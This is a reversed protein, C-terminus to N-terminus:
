EYVRMLKLVEARFDVHQRRAQSLNVVLKPRGSVLDFGLVIGAPVYDALSAVTLLQMSGLADRIAPVQGSFGPTLYVIAIQRTRCTEGLTPADVYSAIEDEHSLGGVSPLTALASKMDTAAVKSDADGPALVILVRAQAGSRAQFNRDYGTVKALLEAQLRIPVNTSEARLRGHVLGSAAGLVVARRACVLAPKAGALPGVDQRSFRPDRQM